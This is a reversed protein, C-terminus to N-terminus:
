FILRVTPNRDSEENLISILRRYGVALLVHPETEKILSPIALGATVTNVTKGPLEVGDSECFAGDDPAKDLM